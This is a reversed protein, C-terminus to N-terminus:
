IPKRTGTLNPSAEKAQVENQMLAQNDNTLLKIIYLIHEGAHLLICSVFLLRKWLRM